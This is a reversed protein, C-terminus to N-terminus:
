VRWIATLVPHAKIRLHARNHSKVTHQVLRCSHSDSTVENLPVENEAGLPSMEIQCEQQDAM